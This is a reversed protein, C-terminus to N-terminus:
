DTLLDLRHPDVFLSCISVSLYCFSFATKGKFVTLQFWFVPLVSLHLTNPLIWLHKVKFIVSLSITIKKKYGTEDQCVSLKGKSKHMKICKYQSNPDPHSRNSMAGYNLGSEGRARCSGTLQQISPYNLGTDM